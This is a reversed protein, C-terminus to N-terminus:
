IKMLMDFLERVASMVRANAAYANQITILRAMETDIDVGAVAKWREDLNAKVIEQGESIRTASEAASGRQTIVQRLFTDISGTFGSTGSVLGTDAGFTFRMQDFRDAMVEPRTSDGASTSTTWKLLAGTDSLLTSNVKIRESFGRREITDATTGIYADGDQDTFLRLSPDTIKVGTVDTTGAAGDDLVQVSTGSATVAFSTGLAAQIQSAIASAGGTFDIEVIQEGISPNVAAPTTGSASSAVFHIRQAQGNVVRDVTIADGSSIDDVNFAFGTAAGSTAATGIVDTPEFVGALAAALADVQSQAEVMITDRIEVYAALEGSRLQGEDIMDSAFGSPQVLLITGVDRKAPDVDWLSTAGISGHADFRLQSAEVDLLSMGGSTLVSVSHDARQIIRIDIMSALEDLKQDRSDELAMIDESRGANERILKNLDALANITENINQVTDAIHDEAEKRLYQIQETMAHLTDTVATASQVTQLQFSLDNPSAALQDLTGGFENLVTDIAGSSGPQGYLADLQQLADARLAAYAASSGAARRQTQVSTDLERNVTDRITGSASNTVVNEYSLRRRIYGDVSSSSINGATIALDRQTVRLGALSSSLASTIPM